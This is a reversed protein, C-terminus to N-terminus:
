EVGLCFIRNPLDEPAHELPHSADGNNEDQGQKRNRVGAHPNLKRPCTRRENLNRRSLRAFSAPDAALLEIADLEVTERNPGALPLIAQHLHIAFRGVAIKAVCIQPSCANLRRWLWSKNHLAYAFSQFAV